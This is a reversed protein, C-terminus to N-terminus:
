KNKEKLAAIGDLIMAKLDMEDDYHKEIIADLDSVTLDVWERKTSVPAAYLPTQNPFKKNTRFSHQETNYFKGECIWAVPEQVPEALVERIAALAKRQQTTDYYGSGLLAEEALKLAETTKDTM